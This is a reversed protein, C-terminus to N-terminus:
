FDSLECILLDFVKDDLIVSKIDIRCGRGKDNKESAEHPPGNSSVVDAKRLVEM